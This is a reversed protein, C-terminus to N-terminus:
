RAARKAEAVYTDCWHACVAFDPWALADLGAPGINLLHAFLGM